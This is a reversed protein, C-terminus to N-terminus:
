CIALTWKLEQQFCVRPQDVNYKIMPRIETTLISISQVIGHNVVLVTMDGRWKVHNVASRQGMTEQHPLPVFTNM